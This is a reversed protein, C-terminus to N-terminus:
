CNNTNDNYINAADKISSEIRLQTAYMDSSMTMADYIAAPNRNNNNYEDIATQIFNDAMNKVFPYIDDEIKEKFKENLAGNLLNRIDQEFDTGSDKANEMVQNITDPTVKLVNEAVVQALLVKSENVRGQDKLAESESLLDQSRSSKKALEANARDKETKAEAVIDNYIDLDPNNPKQQQQAVPQTQTEPQAAFQTQTEPQAVEATETSETTGETTASGGQAPTETETPSEVVEAEEFIEVDEKSVNDEKAEVIESAQAAEEKKKQGMRKLGGLGTFMAGGFAGLLM